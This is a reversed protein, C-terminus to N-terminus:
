NLNSLCKPYVTEMSKELLTAHEANSGQMAGLIVCNGDSQPLGFYIYMIASKLILLILKNTAKYIKRFFRSYNKERM